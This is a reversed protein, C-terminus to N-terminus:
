FYPIIFPTNGSQYIDPKSPVFVPLSPMQKISLKSPTHPKSTTPQKYQNSALYPPHQPNLPPLAPANFANPPTITLVKTINNTKNSEFSKPIFEPANINFAPPKPIYESPTILYIKDKIYCDVYCYEKDQITKDNSHTLSAPESYSNDPFVYCPIGYRSITLYSDMIDCRNKIDMLSNVIILERVNNRNTLVPFKWIYKKPENLGSKLM